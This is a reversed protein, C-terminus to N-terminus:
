VRRSKFELASDIVEVDGAIRRVERVIKARTAKSTAGMVSLLWLAETRESECMRSLLEVVAPIREDPAVRTLEPWQWHVFIKQPTERWVVAAHMQNRLPIPREGRAYAALTNRDTGTRKSWESFTIKKLGARELRANFRNNWQAFAACEAKEEPTLPRLKGHDRRARRKRSSQSM